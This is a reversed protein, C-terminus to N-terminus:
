KSAKLKRKKTFEKNNVTSDKFKKEFSQNKKIQSAKM